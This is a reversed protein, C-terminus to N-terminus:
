IMTHMMSYTYDNYTYNDSHAFYTDIDDDDNDDFYRNNHVIMTDDADDNSNRNSTKHHSIIKNLSATLMMM